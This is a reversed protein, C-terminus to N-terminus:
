RKRWRFIRWGFIWFLGIAIILIHAPPVTRLYSLALGVLLFACFAAVVILFRPIAPRKQFGLGRAVPDRTEFGAALKRNAAGRMGKQLEDIRM